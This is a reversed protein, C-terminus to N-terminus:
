DFIRGDPDILKCIADAYEQKGATFAVIEFHKSLKQVIEKTNPRLRVFAEIISKGYKIFVKQSNSFEVRKCILLTEDIDFAITKMFKKHEARPFRM